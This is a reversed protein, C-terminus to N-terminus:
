ERISYKKLDYQLRVSLFDLEKKLVQVNLDKM